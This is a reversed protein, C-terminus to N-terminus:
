IWKGVSIVMSFMVLFMGGILPEPITVFMAGLKSFVGFVMLIVATM